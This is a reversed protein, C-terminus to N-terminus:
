YWLVYLRDRTKAIWGCTLLFAMDVAWAVASRTGSLVPRGAAPVSFRNEGYETPSM